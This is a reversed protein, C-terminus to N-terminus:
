GGAGAANARGIEEEAARLRALVGAAALRESSYGGPEDRQAASMADGGPNTFAQLQAIVDGLDRRVKTVDVPRALLAAEVSALKIEATEIGALQEYVYATTRIERGLGGLGWVCAVALVGLGVLLAANRLLFKCKLTM